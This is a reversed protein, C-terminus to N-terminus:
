EDSKDGKEKALAALRQGRAMNNLQNVLVKGAMRRFKNTGMGGVVLQVVQYGTEVEIVGSKDDWRYRNNTDMMKGM